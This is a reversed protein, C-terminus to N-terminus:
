LTEAQELLENFTEDLLVAQEVLAKLNHSLPYEMDRSVLFGKLYKEVAQQCHFCVADAPIDADASLLIEASRLDSAAKAFWGEVLDDNSM